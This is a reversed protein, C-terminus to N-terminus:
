RKRWIAVITDNKVTVYTDHVLYKTYETTEEVENITMYTKINDKLFSMSQGVRVDDIHIREANTTETWYTLVAFFVIGLFLALIFRLQPRGIFQIAFTKKM